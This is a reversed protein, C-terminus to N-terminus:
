LPTKARDRGGAGYLWGDVRANIEVYSCKGVSFLWKGATKSDTWADFVPQPPVSLQRTLRVDILQQTKMAITERTPDVWSKPTLEPPQLMREGNTSSCSFNFDKQRLDSMIRRTIATPQGCVVTTSTIRDKVVLSARHQGNLEIKRITPIGRM